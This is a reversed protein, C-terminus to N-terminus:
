FGVLLLNRLSNKLPNIQNLLESSYADYDEASALDREAAEQDGFALNAIGKFRQVDGALQLGGARVADGFM